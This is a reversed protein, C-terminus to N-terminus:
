LSISFEVSDDANRYSLVGGMNNEVVMKAFYLSLGSGFSVRNSSYYPEMVVNFDEEKIQPGNNSIVILPRDDKTTIRIKIFPSKPMEETIAEIGNCIIQFVVNTLDTQDGRIKSDREFDKRLEIANALLTDRAIYIADNVSQEISFSDEYAKHKFYQRFKDITDSMSRITQMSSTVLEEMLEKTLEGHHSLSRIEQINLGVITLPQRWHHAINVLIENMSTLRASLMQSKLYERRFYVKKIVDLLVSLLKDLTVPKVLFKDFGLDFLKELNQYDNFATMIVLIQEPNIRKITRAMQFGDIEPMKLDCIVIDYSHGAGYAELGSVGNDAAEVVEFFKRLIAATEERIDREDEAYLVRCKKSYRMIEEIAAMNDLNVAM